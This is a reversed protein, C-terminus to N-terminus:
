YCYYFNNQIFMLSNDLTDWNTIDSAQGHCMIEIRFQNNFLTKLSYCGYQGCSEELISFDYENIKLNMGKIKSLILEIEKKVLSLDDTKKIKLFFGGVTTDDKLTHFGNNMINSFNKDLFDSYSIYERMPTRDKNNHHLFFDIVNDTTLSKDFKEKDKKSFPKKEEVFDIILNLCNNGPETISDDVLFKRLYDQNNQVIITSGVSLCNVLENEISLFEEEDIILHAM